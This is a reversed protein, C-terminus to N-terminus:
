VAQGGRDSRSTGFAGSGAATMVCAVVIAIAGYTVADRLGVRSAAIGLALATIAQMAYGAFYLTSLSLARHRHDIRDSVLALGGMFLLAYGIGAAIVSVILLPLSHVRAALALLLMSVAATSGGARIAALAPLRKFLLSTVGWVIAFSAIVAGNILMNQSRILDRAIQAGLSLMVTGVVFATMVSPAARLLIARMESPLRAARPGPDTSAFQAGRPLYLWCVVFLVVLLLLLVEFTRHAPDSAYEILAGGVIAAAALGSAQATSNIASAFARDGAPTDDLVAASAPGAALGVGLGTFLRGVFLAGVSGAVAFATVGVISAARGLLVTSRRGIADSMGGLALLTLAVVVPYEAFIASITANSAHWARAYWAYSMAPAASTWLTQVM